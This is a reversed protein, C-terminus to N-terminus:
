EAGDGAAKPKDKPMNSKPVALGNQIASLAREVDIGKGPTVSAILSGGEIKEGDVTLERVNYFDVKAM